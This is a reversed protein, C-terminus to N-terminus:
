SKINKYYHDIVSEEPSHLFIAASSKTIETYASKQKKIEKKTRKSYLQMVRNELKDGLQGKLLWEVIGTRSSKRKVLPSNPIEINPFFDQIWANQRKLVTLLETNYVPMLSSIETAIFINRKDM